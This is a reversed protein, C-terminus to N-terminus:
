RGVTVRDNQANYRVTRGTVALSAGLGEGSIAAQPPTGQGALMVIWIDADSGRTIVRVPDDTSSIRADAPHMVWAKVFGKNRGTMVFYPRGNENGSTVKVGGDDRDSGLNAQWTYDHANGSRVQDLTSMIGQGEGLSFDVVMHRRASHVGLAQYHAGGDVIAYGGHKMTEFHDREGTDPKGRGPQYKGDVLLASFLSDDREKGPGGIFRTNYGMINIALAEPQNWAKSHSHADASLTLLLDNEDQWRNRFLYYGRNDAVAHPFVGTPDRPKVQAPYYLLSWVTGARDADFKAQADGPALRGMHRDYWWVYYPMQEDPVMNLLLSVWGEDYNTSHAVGTMVFKREHPQFSHSYMALRWWARTKAVRLLSGDGVSAAAYCAPLLFGGPYETYGIGEQSVGLDGFGNRMHLELDRKLRRYRSERQKEEGLALILMIEGGRCVAVWNSGKVGGFNAHGYKPWAQLAQEIKQRVFKRQEDNWKDYCWDYSVALGLGMMARGLGYGKHAFREAAPDSYMDSITQFSVQAYRQREAASPSVLSLMAAERAKYSRKYDRIHDSYAKEFDDADVRAKMAVFAQAHHSDRVQVAKQIVAIREATVMLRPHQQGWAPVGPGVAALLVVVLVCWKLTSANQTPKRM